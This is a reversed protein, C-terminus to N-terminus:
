FALTHNFASRIKLLHLSPRKLKYLYSSDRPQATSRPVCVALASHAREWPVSCNHHSPAPTDAQPCLLQSPLFFDVSLVNRKRESRYGRLSVINTLRVSLINQFVVNGLGQRMKLAQQRLYKLIFTGM